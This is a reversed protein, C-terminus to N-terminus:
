SKYINKGLRKKVFYHWMSPIIFGNEIFVTQERCFNAPLEEDNVNNRWHRNNIKKMRTKEVPHALM